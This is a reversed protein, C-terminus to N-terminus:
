TEYEDETDVFFLGQETAQWRRGTPGFARRGSSKSADSDNDDSSVPSEAESLEVEHASSNTAHLNKEPNNEDEGEDIAYGRREFEAEDDVVSYETNDLGDLDEVSFGMAIIDSVRVETSHGCVYFNDIGRANRDVFFDEPPVSEICIEGHPVSRSLKVDHQPVEIEIGEADISISTSVEHELVEVDDEGVLATFAEDTLNRMTFIEPKMSENYFVYAIGTKKVMADQFVDNLVKYGNHKQFKYAVFSTAQEAAAVDEPGKPVFEVPKDNTLFIRQISPKIGRVAERCKTAVVSSRGDESGIDVKNDFYRQAKIRQPAIEADVFDVADQVAKSVISEIQTQDLPELRM